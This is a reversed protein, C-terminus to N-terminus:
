TTHERKKRQRRKSEVNMCECMTFSAKAKVALVLAGNKKLEETQRAGFTEDRDLLM